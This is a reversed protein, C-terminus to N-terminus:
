DRFPEPSIKKVTHLKLTIFRVIVTFNAGESHTVAIAPNLCGLIM